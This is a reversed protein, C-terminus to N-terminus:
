RLFYGRPEDLAWRLAAVIRAPVNRRHHEPWRGAICAEAILWQDLRFAPDLVVMRGNRNQIVEGIDGSGTFPLPGSVLKREIIFNAYARAHGDMRAMYTDLLELAVEPPVDDM